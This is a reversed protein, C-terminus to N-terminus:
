APCRGAGCVAVGDRRREKSRATVQNSRSGLSGHVRYGVKVSRHMLPFRRNHGVHNLAICVQDRRLIIIAPRRQLKRGTRPMEIHHAQQHFTTGIQIMTGVISLSSRSKVQGLLVVALAMGHSQKEELISCTM